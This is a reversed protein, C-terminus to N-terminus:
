RQATWRVPRYRWRGPWPPKQDDARLGEAADHVPLVAGGAHEKAIARAGQHKLRLVAIARRPIAANEGGVQMGVALEFVQEIDITADRRGLGGADQLHLALLDEAVRDFLQGLRGMAREVAGPKRSRIHVPDDGM